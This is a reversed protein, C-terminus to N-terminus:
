TKKQYCLYFDVPQIQLLQFLVNVLDENVKNKIIGKNVKTAFWVVWIGKRPYELLVVSKETNDTKTFSETM